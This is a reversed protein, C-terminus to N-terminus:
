LNAAHSCLSHMWCSSPPTAKLGNEIMISHDHHEPSNGSSRTVPSLFVDQEGQLLVLLLTQSVAPQDAEM